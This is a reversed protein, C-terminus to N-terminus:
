GEGLEALVATVTEAITANAFHQLPLSVGLDDQLGSRLSMLRVSAMGLERLATDGVLTGSDVGALVGVRRCLEATLVTARLQAPLGTIMALMPKQDSATAAAATEPAGVRVLPNLRDNLYAERTARRQIKGSATRSVSEPAVLLVEHVEVEHAAGVARRIQEALAALGDMDPDVSQVVVLQEGRPGDVSFAAGARGALAPAAEQASLEIDQPQYNKGHLIILEKLRGCLVLNGDLLFALDGTRLYPGSGDALTAGFTEATEQPRQWYGDNVVPGRVWLEGVSGDPVVTATAADVIRFEIGPAPIGVGVLELTREADPGTVIARGQELDAADVTVSPTSPHRDAAVIQMTETLGYAPFLSTRRFGSVAFADAFRRLTDARVREGGLLAVEWGSLDLGARQEASTRDVCLDYAFNPGGSLVPGPTDSITRLWRYPDAVFDEPLLCVATGGTLQALLLHGLGLAHYVPMWNVVNGHDPLASLVRFAQLQETFAGAPVLVGKPAGTSGSTYQLLVPEHDDVHVPEVAGALDDLIVWRTDPRCGQAWLPRLVPELASTTVVAVPASDRAIALFRHHDAAPPACPVAVAGAYLCGFLAAVFDTGPPLAVLVREGRVDDDVLAAAVALAQRDLEGCSLEDTRGDSLFRLAVSNATDLANARVADVVSRVTARIPM